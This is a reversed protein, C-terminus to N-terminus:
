RGTVQRLQERSRRAGPYDPKLRVAEDFARRADDCREIRAFAIGLNHHMEADQPALRLAAEYHPIAAAVRDVDLLANGLKFRANAHMPEQQLVVEYNAIAEEPRRLAALANGAGYRAEVLEPQNALVGQFQALADAPRGAVLLAGGYTVAYDPEGPRLRRATAYHGLAEPTRTLLMLASGLNFHADAYDSRLRLAAEYSTVAEAIQGERQRAIGLNYHYLPETPKLRVAEAYHRLAEGHRGLRALLIALNNHARPENPYLRLSLQYHRVADGTRGAEALVVALNYYYQSEDPLLRVAETHAQIAEDLRGAAELAEALGAHARPNLPRKAVTDAWLALHSRYDYNRRVALAAFGVAILASASLLRRGGACYFTWVAGVIVAALPLYMRHEVIMQITGPALSTPALIGFFWAGLFGATPWRWLAVVTAALVPLVIVAYPVVDGAREVWFTGYEFILPSPWGGLGLYRALAQFQTLPYAWLPVGVGLGVTGGRNGGTSLVLAGLVLWTAALGLYYSRRARWAAALTGAVFTRDYLLVLLPATVMVEKTGMGLASALVSGVLWARRRWSIDSILHCQTARVFTYLSLLYFFGMLSEARQVTYTVAQTQLPHLAWLAAIALALAEAPLSAGGSQGGVNTPRGLGCKECESQEERRGSM